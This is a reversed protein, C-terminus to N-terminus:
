VKCKSFIPRANRTTQKTAHNTFKLIYEALKKENPREVRLAYISGRNKKVWFCEYGTPLKDIQILAHYHERENKSGYDINAVYPVGFSGLYRYIEQRRTQYTTNNLHSDNFTITLFLCPKELLASIFLKVRHKKEQKSKNLASAIHMLLDPYKELTDKKLKELHQRDDCPYSLWSPYVVDPCPTEINPFLDRLHSRALLKNEYTSISMENVRIIIDRQM